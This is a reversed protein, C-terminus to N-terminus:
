RGIETIVMTMSGTNTNDFNINDDSINRRVNACIRLAASGSNTYRGILPFLVGSRDSGATASFVQYSFGMEAGSPGGVTLTSYFSDIGGGAPEYKASIDAIIYSTTSRPTFSCSFFCSNSTSQAGSGSTFVGTDGVKYARMQIVDGANWVSPTITGAGTVNGTQLDINFLSANSGGTNSGRLIRFTNQWNDLMSASTYLGGSAALLIQGGEGTGGAFPPYVNLTNETSPTSTISGVSLSGSFIVYGDDRISVIDNFSNNQFKATFTTSTTGQGKVAFETSSPQTSQSYNVFIGQNRGATDVDLLIPKYSGVGNGYNYGAIQVSASADYRLILGSSTGAIQGTGLMMFGNNRVDM